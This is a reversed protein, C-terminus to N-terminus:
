RMEQTYFSNGLIELMYVKNTLNNQYVTTQQYSNNNGAMSVFYNSSYKTFGQYVRANNTDGSFFVSALGNITLTRGSYDSRGTEISVFPAFTNIGTYLLYGRPGAEGVNLGNRSIVFDNHGDNNLDAVVSDVTDLAETNAQVGVTNLVNFNFDYSVISDKFGAVVNNNGFFVTNSTGENLVSCTAFNQDPLINTHLSFSRAGNNVYVGGVAGPVYGSAILIDPLGDNNLDGVCAGHAGSADTWNQRTFGAAGGWFMINTRAHISSGDGFGPIFIDKYGDNDFDAILIRQSGGIVNNTILSNTSNTLTGNANQTFIYLYATSSDYSWGSVVVDELGDNNLDAVAFSNFGNTALTAVFIRNSQAAGGGAGGGGGGGGCATLLLSVVTACFLNQFKM